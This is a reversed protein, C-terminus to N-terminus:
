SKHWDMCFLYLLVVLLENVHDLVELFISGEIEGVMKVQGFANLLLCFVGFNRHVMESEIFTKEGSDFIRESGM